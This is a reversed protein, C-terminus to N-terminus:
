EGRPAAAARGAETDRSGLALLAEEFAATERQWAGRRDRGVFPTRLRRGAVRLCGGLRLARSMRRAGEPGHRLAAWRAFDAWLLAPHQGGEIAGARRGITAGGEHVVRAGPVLAVQWGAATLRLCLDLDQCYFQFGEDFGGAQRWAERRVTMGAGCVWDVDGHAATRVPRIRRYGPVRGLGGGLGSAVAFLWLPTPERGGSWQPRGDPFCLEAGAVGLRPRADFAELLRPLAEATLRADSNLLLLLDGQAAAMGRNAAASFGRASGIVILTVHPHRHRVAAATGDRSGDDVVIVEAAAAPPLSSLCQLTLERTDHTPVVISLRPRM